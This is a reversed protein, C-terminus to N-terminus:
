DHAKTKSCYNGCTRVVYKTAAIRYQIFFGVYNQTSKSYKNIM